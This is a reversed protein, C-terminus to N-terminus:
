PFDHGLMIFTENIMWISKFQYAKIAYNESWMSVERLQNMM